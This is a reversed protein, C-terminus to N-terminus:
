WFRCAGYVWGSDVQSSLSVSRVVGVSVSFTRDASWWLWLGFGGWVVGFSRYHRDEVM